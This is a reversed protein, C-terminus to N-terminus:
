ILMAVTCSLRRDVICMRWLLDARLDRISRSQVASARELGGATGNGIKQTTGRINNNNIVNSIIIDGPQVERRSVFRSPPAECMM